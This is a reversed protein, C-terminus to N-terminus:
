TNCTITRYKTNTLLTIVQFDLNIIQGVELDLYFCLDDRAELIFTGAREYVPVVEFVEDPVHGSALHAGLLLLLSIM